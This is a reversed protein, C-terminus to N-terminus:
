VCFFRGRSFLSFSLVGLELQHLRERLLLVGKEVRQSAYRLCVFVLFVLVADESVKAAAVPLDFIVALHIM